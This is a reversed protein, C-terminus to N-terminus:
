AHYERTNIARGTHEALREIEWGKEERRQRLLDGLSERAKFSNM